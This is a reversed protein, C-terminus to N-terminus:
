IRFGHFRKRLRMASLKMGLLFGFIVLAIPVGLIMWKNSKTVSLYNTNTSLKTSNDGIAVPQVNGANAIQQQLKQNEQQQIALENQLEIIQKQDAESSSANALSNELAAIESQLEKNQESVSYYLLKEPPETVLFAAKVWGETGDNTIVRSFGEQKELVEVSDGSELTLLVESDGKPESYMRLKLSDTVYAFEQAFLITSFFLLIFIFFKKAM